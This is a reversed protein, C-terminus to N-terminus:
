LNFEGYYLQGDDLIFQVSVLGETWPISIFSPADYSDITVEVTEGADINSVVVDVSGLDVTFSVVVSSALSSYYAEIPVISRNPFTTGTHNAPLIVIPNGGDSYTAGKGNFSCLVLLILLLSYKKSNM